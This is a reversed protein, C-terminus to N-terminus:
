RAQATEILIKATQAATKDWSFDKAREISREALDACLADDQLIREIQAALEKANDPSFYLVADGAVEPMATTNSSIVACGSAMAEVLPNGFAEVTSSFIVSRCSAYLIQIDEPTKSGLFEVNKSLDTNKIQECISNYYVPDIVRGAIRLKIDPHTQRILSLAEIVTKFNKQIYIDSVMLLFKERKRQDIAGAARFQESVGHHVIDIKHRMCKPAISEAAYASVAIARKVFIVSIWTVLSISAWLIRRRIRRETRGVDLANRLLTVQKRLVFPGYNGPSFVVDANITKVLIPFVVQEWFFLGYFGSPFNRAHIQINSGLESYIKQQDEHIILHVDLAPNEGLLPLVNRLYTVGGGSKAHIGNVLVRTRKTPESM